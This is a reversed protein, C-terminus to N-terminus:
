GLRICSLIRAGPFPLFAKAQSHSSAGLTYSQVLGFADKFVIEYRGAKHTPTQTPIYDIPRFM